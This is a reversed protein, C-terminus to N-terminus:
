VAPNETPEQTETGETEETPTKDKITVVAVLPFEHM